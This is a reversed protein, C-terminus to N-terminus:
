IMFELCALLQEKRQESENGLIQNCRNCIIGHIEEGIHHVCSKNQKSFKTDCCECHTKSNRLTKFKQTLRRNSKSCHKCIRRPQRSKQKYFDNLKLFQKCQKCYLTECRTTESSEPVAEKSIPREQPNVTDILNKCEMFELCKHIQQKNESSEDALIYNCSYCVIGRIGVSEIHHIHTLKGHDLECGCSMCFKCQYLHEIITESVRFRHAALEIKKCTKCVYELGSVNRKSTYFYKAEKNEGCRRCDQTKYPM